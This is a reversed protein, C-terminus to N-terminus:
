PNSSGSLIKVKSSFERYDTFQSRLWYVKKNVRARASVTLPILKPGEGARRLWGYTVIVRYDNWRGSIELNVSMRLINTDEDTWVEGYCSVTVIKNVAFFGFDSISKFMCVGDEADAWYQFVKIRRENVVADAAQHIRLRLKTGVMKPLESWEGWTNIANNLFPFPVDRLEKKGDPYKRFRQNDDLVRIEYASTASPAKNGSGWALTQVAIFYRMSDALLQAKSRLVKVEAPEEPRHQLVDAAPPPVLKPYFDASVPSIYKSSPFISQALSPQVKSVFDVLSQVPVALAVLEGNQAIASLVGVIKGNNSDVVIGGSAGPRIAKGTSLRYDFALLGSLTEGSFKAHFQLLSRFPDIGEMPYSYIDVEQGIQLDDLSFPVGYHRALSHRLEFIALDRSLTYKTTGGAFGDNFTAGEDNPGTALYREVVRQGKIRRTRTIAAVHYNTGIFRCEPDLCFGTGLKGEIGLGVFRLETIPFVTKSFDQHVIVSTTSVSPWDSSNDQALALLSVFSYVILVPVIKCLTM